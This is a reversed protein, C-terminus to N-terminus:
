VFGRQKAIENLDAIIRNNYKEYIEVFESADNISEESSIPIYVTGRGLQKKNKINYESNKRFNNHSFVIPIQTGHLELAMSEKEAMCCHFQRTLNVGFLLFKDYVIMTKAANQPLFKIKLGFRELEMQKVYEKSNTIISIDKIGALMFYSLIYHLIPKKAINGELSNIRIEGHWSNEECTTKGSILYDVDIDLIMSLKPMLAADPFCIGREWKSVAKDTVNLMQALKKQSYGLNRRSAAIVTGTKILDM